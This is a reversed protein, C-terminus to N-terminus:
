EVKRVELIKIKKQRPKGAKKMAERFARRAESESSVIYEFTFVFGLADRVTVEYPQKM